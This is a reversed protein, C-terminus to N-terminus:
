LSSYILDLQSPPHWKRQPVEQEGDVDMQFIIKINKALIQAILADLWNLYNILKFLFNEDKENAVELGRIPIVAM